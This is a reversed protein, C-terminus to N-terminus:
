GIKQILLGALLVAELIILVIIIAFFYGPLNYILSLTLFSVEIWMMGFIIYIPKKESIVIGFGIAIFIMSIIIIFYDPIDSDFCLRLFTNGLMMVFIGTLSKGM